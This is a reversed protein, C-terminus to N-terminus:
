IHTCLSSKGSGSNGTSNEGDRTRHPIFNKYADIKINKVEHWEDHKNAPHNM